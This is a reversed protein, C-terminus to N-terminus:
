YGPEMIIKYPSKQDPRPTTLLIQFAAPVPPASESSSCAFLTLLPVALVLRRM